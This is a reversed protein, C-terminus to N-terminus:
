RIYPSIKIWIPFSGLFFGLLHLFSRHPAAPGETKTCRCDSKITSPLTLHLTIVNQGGKLLANVSIIIAVCRVIGEMFCKSRHNKLVLLLLLKFKRSKLSFPM